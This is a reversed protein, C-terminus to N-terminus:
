TRDVQGRTIRDRNRLPDGYLRFNVGAQGPQKCKWVLWRGFWLFDPSLPSFALFLVAGRPYQAIRALMRKTKAADPYKKQPCCNWNGEIKEGKGGPGWQYCCRTLIAWM